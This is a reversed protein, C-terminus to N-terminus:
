KPPTAVSKLLTNEARLEAIQKTMVESQTISLTNEAQFEAIQKTM